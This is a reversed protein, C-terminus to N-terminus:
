TFQMFLHPLNINIVRNSSIPLFLRILYGGKVGLSLLLSKGGPFDADWSAHLYVAHTHPGASQSASSSPKCGAMRSRAHDRFRDRGGQALKMLMPGSKQVSRM